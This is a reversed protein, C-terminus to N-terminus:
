PVDGVDNSRPSLLQEDRQQAKFTQIITNRLSSLNGPAPDSNKINHHNGCCLVVRNGDASLDLLWCISM